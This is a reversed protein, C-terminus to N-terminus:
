AAKPLYQAVGNVLVSAIHNREGNVARLAADHHARLAKASFRAIDFERLVGISEGKMGFSLTTQRFGGGAFEVRLTTDYANGLQGSYEAKGYHYSTLRLIIEGPRGSSDEGPGLVWETTVERKKKGAWPTPDNIRDFTQGGTALLTAIANEDYM